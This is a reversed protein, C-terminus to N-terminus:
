STKRALRARRREWSKHWDDSWSHLGLHIQQTADCFAMLGTIGSYKEKVGLEDWCYPPGSHNLLEHGTLVCVPNLPHDPKWYKRGRKAIKIIETKEAQTLEKRFTSFVLICGPFEAALAAMRKFDLEGFEGFSKCEGFGVGTSEGLINSQHWLLGFDAEIENGNKKNAMFSMAPTLAIHHLREAFFNISSLVCYAGDAYGSISFPGATKYKWKGNRIHQDARYTHLCRPCTLSTDLDKLSHWSHKFCRPCQNEYGVVFVNRELLREFLHQGPLGRRIVPKSAALRNQIESLDAGRKARKGSSMEELFRLAGENFWAVWGGLQSYMQKAILGAPSADPSWGLDRLWAFFVDQALPLKWFVTSEHNVLKVLGDRGVRWEDRSTGFEAIARLVNEGAVPPFASALYEKPGYVSTDIDNAYRPENSIGFSDIFDPILETFRIRDIEDPLEIEKEKFYVRIPEVDDKDRGWEDWIRPYWHQLSLTLRREGGRVKIAFAQMEDMSVSRSRIFNANNEIAPNQRLPHNASKLFDLVLSCLQSDESFQRPAAIVHRGAARLNWFDLLDLTSTADMFFVNDNRWMSSRPTSQLAYRSVRLPYLIKSDRAFTSLIHTNAPESTIDLARGFRETIAQQLSESFVGFVAAWFLAYKGPITVLKVQHPFKEVFRFHEDFIYPFLDFIGVAWFPRLPHWVDPAWIKNAPIIELGFQSIFNPIEGPTCNILVDPDFARIYGRVIQEPTPRRSTQDVWRTPTRKFIPVLPNYFGGWVSSNIEIATRLSRRDAVDVLLGARLPRSKIRLTALMLTRHIEINIYRLLTLGFQAFITM